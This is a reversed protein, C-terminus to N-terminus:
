FALSFPRFDDMIYDEMGCAGLNLAILSPLSALGEVNDLRNRSLNLM